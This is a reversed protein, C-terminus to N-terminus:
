WTHAYGGNQKRDANDGSARSYCTLIRTGRYKEGGAIDNANAYHLADRKERRGPTSPGAHVRKFYM